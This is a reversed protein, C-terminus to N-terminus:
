LVGPRRVNKLLLPDLYYRLVDKRNRYWDNQRWLRVNRSGAQSQLPAGIGPQLTDPLAIAVHSPTMILGITYRDTLERRLELDTQVPRWGYFTAWELSWKHLGKAGHEVITQGYIPKVNIGKRLANLADQTWWVWASILPQGCAQEIFDAAYHDCYTAKTGDPRTRPQWRLMTDVALWDVLSLLDGGAWRDSMPQLYDARDSRMGQGTPEGYRPIPIQVM